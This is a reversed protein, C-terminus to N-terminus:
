LMLLISGIALGVGMLERNSLTENYLYYGMLSSVIIAFCGTIAQSVGIGKKSFLKALFFAYTLYFLSAKVFLIYNNNKSFNTLYYLAGTEALVIILIYLVIKSMYIYIY